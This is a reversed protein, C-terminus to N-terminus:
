VVEDEGELLRDGAIEGGARSGRGEGRAVRGQGQAVGGKRLRVLGVALQLQTALLLLLHGLLFTGLVETFFFEALSDQWASFATMDALHMHHRKHFRVYLTKNEHLIWHVAAAFFSSFM